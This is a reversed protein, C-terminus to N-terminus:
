AEDLIIRNKFAGRKDRKNKQVEVIQEITWQKTELIATIAEFVDAMEEISEAEAWEGVEEALKEKLKQWYEKEDAAHTVPTGGKKRIIEPIGDRVLKNYKMHTKPIAQANEEAPYYMLGTRYADFSLRCFEFLPEPLADLAYWGWGEAKDPELTQPEGSGWDAVFGFHVYHKPAYKTSSTVYQFRMNKVSIGCEEAIERRACKEFSEMYELHGGPFSYEGAGHSGRRRALLVKGDKLIMVGVGVKPHTEEM